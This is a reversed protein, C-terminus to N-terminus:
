DHRVLGIQLQRWVGWWTSADVRWEVQDKAYLMAPDGIQYWTANHACNHLFASLEVEVYDSTRQMIPKTM